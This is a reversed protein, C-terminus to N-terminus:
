RNICLKEIESQIQKIFLDDKKPRYKSCINDIIAMTFFGIAIPYM